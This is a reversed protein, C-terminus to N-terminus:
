VWRKSQWHHVERKQSGHCGARWNPKERIWILLQNVKGDNL